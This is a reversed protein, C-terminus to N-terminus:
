PDELTGCFSIYYIYNLYTQQNPGCMVILCFIM